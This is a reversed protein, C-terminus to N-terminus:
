AAAIGGDVVVAEGNVYSAEDSLLWTVLAAIEDAEALRGAPVRMLMGEILEPPSVDILGQLMPTRVLGPCVANVRVGLPGADLAAVKTLGVVAHKSAGYAAQGPVGRLGAVSATNVVAGGSWDGAARQSAM